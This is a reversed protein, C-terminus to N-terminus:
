LRHRKYKGRTINIINKKNAYKFFPLDQLLEVLKFLCFSCSTGCSAFSLAQQDFFCNDTVLSVLIM